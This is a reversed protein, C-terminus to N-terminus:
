ISQADKWSQAYVTIGYQRTHQEADGSSKSSSQLEKPAMKHENISINQITIYIHTRKHAEQVDRHTCTDM